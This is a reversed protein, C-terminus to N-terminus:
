HYFNDKSEEQLSYLKADGLSSRTPSKVEPHNSKNEGRFADFTVGARGGGKEVLIM